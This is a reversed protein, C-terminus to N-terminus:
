APAYACCNIDLSDRSVSHCRMRCQDGPATSADTQFYACLKERQTIGHQVQRASRCRKLVVFQVIEGTRFILLHASVEVGTLTSFYPHRSCDLRNTFFEEIHPTGFQGPPLSINHIVLLSIAADDPRENANASPCYRAGGLLGEVIDM